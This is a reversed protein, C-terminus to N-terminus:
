FLYFWFAWWTQPRKKNQEGETREKPFLDRGVKNIKM